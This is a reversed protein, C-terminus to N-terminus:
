RAPRRTTPRSSGTSRGSRAPTCSTSTRCGVRQRTEGQGTAEYDRVERREPRERTVTLEAITPGTGWPQRERPADAPQDDVTATRGARDAARRHGTPRPRRSRPQPRRCDDHCDHGNDSDDHEDARDDGTTCHHATDDHAARGDDCDDRRNDDVITTGETTETTTTTTPETTLHLRSRRVSPRDRTKCASSRGRDDSRQRTRMPPRPGDARDSGASM